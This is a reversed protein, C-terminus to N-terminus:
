SVAPNVKPCQAKPVSGLIVSPTAGCASANESGTASTM